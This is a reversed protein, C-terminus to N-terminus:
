ASAAPLIYQRMSQELFRRSRIIAQDAKIINQKLGQIYDDSLKIETINAGKENLGNKHAFAEQKKNLLNTKETLKEQYARQSASLEELKKQEKQIRVKEVAELQFKFKAM